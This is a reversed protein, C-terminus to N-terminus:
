GRRLGYRFFPYREDLDRPVVLVSATAEGGKQQAEVHRLQPGRVDVWRPHVLVGRGGDQQGGRGRRIQTENGRHRPIAALTTRVCHLRCGDHGHLM